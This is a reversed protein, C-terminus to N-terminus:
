RHRDLVPHQEPGLRLGSRAAATLPWNVIRNTGASDIDVQPPIVRRDTTIWGTPYPGTIHYTVAPRIYGAADGNSLQWHYGPWTHATFVGPEVERADKPMGSFRRQAPTQVHQPGLIDVHPYRAKVRLSLPATVPDLNDLCWNLRGSASLGAPAVLNGGAARTGVLRAAVILGDTNCQLVAREGLATIVRGLRARTAAEVWAFIAPYTNDGTGTEAVWYRVGDLDVVGGPVQADHDWGQEYGWGSGPAPSLRTKEHARAAWRGIVSRGWLKAAYRAVPPASPVHGNQVDLCWRAWPLMAVDLQHAQGPGITELTGLRRAEAIDDGALDAVFRGVPYWTVGEVRVPWRPVATAITCRAAIGWRDTTFVSDNVDLSDFRYARRIPLPCHAAITPYAATFDLEVYPGAAHHGLSWVGRRGGHIAARDATVTDPDPDITIRSPSPIHRFANWGCAPGSVAWNGLRDRDWWDLLQGMAAGLIEVDARCRALWDAASDHEAPLPPKPIGVTHSIEELPVPLWSASDALVLSRRGRHLRMWPSKGGIAASSLTWGAACLRQPLRTTVLDFDLNHTFLWITQRGTFWRNIQDVLGAGTTGDAWEDRAAGSRPPRRDQYHATWCRLRLLEGAAVDVTSTETDAYIVAPPTYDRANGRLYHIPVPPPM